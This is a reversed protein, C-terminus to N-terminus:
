PNQSPKQPPILGIAVATKRPLRITVTARGKALTEFSVSIAGQVEVYVTPEGGTLSEFVEEYVHVGPEDATPAHYAISAKTSM